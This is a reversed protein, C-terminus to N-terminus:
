MILRHINRKHTTLNAKFSFQKSCIDCEFKDIAHVRSHNRYVNSRSFTKGCGEVECKFPRNSTHSSRIHEKLQQSKLFAKECLHCKHNRSRLHKDEVHRKLLYEFAFGQGCKDCLFSTLKAHCRLIHRIILSRQGYQKKCLDCGYGNGDHTERQHDRLLLNTEFKQLCLGCTTKNLYSQPSHSQNLHYALGRPTCWQNCFPCEETKEAHLSEDSDSFVDTDVESGSPAYSSESSKSSSTSLEDDDCENIPQLIIPEPAEYKIAVKTDICNKTVDSSCLIDVLNIVEHKSENFYQETTTKDLDFLDGLAEFEENLRLKRLVVMVRVDSIHKQKSLELLQLFHNRQLGMYYPSKRKMMAVTLPLMPAIPENDFEYEQEIPASM